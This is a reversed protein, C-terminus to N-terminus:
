FAEIRTECIANTLCNVQRPHWEYIDRFKYITTELHPLSFDSYEYISGELINVVTIKEVDGYKVNRMLAYMISQTIWKANCKDKTSAKIEIVNNDRKDFVDMIGSLLVTNPENELWEHQPLIGGFHMPIQMACKDSLMDVFKTVNKHLTSIKDHFWDYLHAISQYISNIYQSYFLTLNWWSRSSIEDNPIDSLIDSISQRFEDNDYKQQFVYKGRKYYKIVERLIDMNYEFFTEYKLYYDNFTTGRVDMFTRVDHMCRLVDENDTFVVKDSNYMSFIRTITSMGHRQDYERAIMLEAMIGLLRFQNATLKSIIKQRKGFITKQFDYDCAFMDSINDLSNAIDTVNLRDRPSYSMRTANIIGREPKQIEEDIDRFAARIQDYIKPMIQHDKWVCYALNNYEDSDINNVKLFPSPFRYNFGIFLYKTSRTLGVNFASESYIISPKGIYEQRPLCWNTVGLFFIVKYGRGKIAHISILATKGNLYDWDVTSDDDNYSIGVANTLGRSEYLENLKDYTAQFIANDKSRSMIIAIDSPIIDDNEMLVKITATIRKAIVLSETNKYDGNSDSISDHTFLFPKDIINNDRHIIRPIEYKRQIDSLLYNNFDIHAKPCRLCHSLDFYRPRIERFINMAHITDLEADTVGLLFLTQLLDGAVYVHLDTHIKTINTIIKMKDYTLDQVEDIILLDVKQESRTDSTSGYMYCEVENAIDSTLELLAQTKQRFADGSINTIENKSLMSSVWADYNSICIKYDGDYIHHNTNGRQNIEIDLRNAIRSKIENTVSGVLTLFLISPHDHTEIFKVASKILTDTKHSGACGNILKYRDDSEVIERQQESIYNM